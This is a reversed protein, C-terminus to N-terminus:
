WPHGLRVHQNKVASIFSCRIQVTSEEAVIRVVANEGSRSPVAGCSTRRGRQRWWSLRSRVEVEIPDAGTPGFHRDQAEKMFVNDQDQVWEIVPGLAALTPFLM